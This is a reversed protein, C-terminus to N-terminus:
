SRFRGGDKNFEQLQSKSYRRIMMRRIINLLIFPLGGGLRINDRFVWSLILAIGTFALLILSLRIVAGRDPIDMGVFGTRLSFTMVAGLVFVCGFLGSAAMQATIRSLSPISFGFAFAGIVLWLNTGLLVPNLLVRKCALLATIVVAGVGSIVFLTGAKELDVSGALLFSSALTIVPAFQVAETLIRRFL